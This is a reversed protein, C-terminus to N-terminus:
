SVKRWSFKVVGDLSKYHKLWKIRSKINWMNVHNNVSISGDIWYLTVQYM